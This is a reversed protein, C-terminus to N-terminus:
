CVFYMCCTSTTSNQSINRNPSRYNVQILGAVGLKNRYNNYTDVLKGRSRIGNHPRIYFTTPHETPFIKVIIESLNEFDVRKM